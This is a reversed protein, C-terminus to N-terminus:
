ARCSPQPSVAVGQRRSQVVLLGESKWSLVVVVQRVADSALSVVGRPSDRLCRLRLELNRHSALSQVVEATGTSLLM